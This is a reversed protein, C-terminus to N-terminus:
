FFIILLHVWLSLLFFGEYRGLLSGAPFFELLMMQPGNTICSGLITVIYPHRITKMIEIEQTFRKDNEAHTNVKVAVLTRTGVELLDKVEYSFIYIYIYIYIYITM